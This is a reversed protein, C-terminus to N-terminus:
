KKAKRIVYCTQQGVHVGRKIEKIIRNVSILLDDSEREREWQM